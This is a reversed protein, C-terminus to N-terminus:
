SKGPSELVRKRIKWSMQKMLELVKGPNNLFYEYIGPSEM